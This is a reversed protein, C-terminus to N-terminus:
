KEKPDLAEKAKKAADKLGNGFSKIGAKAKSAAYITQYKAIQLKEENSLEEAYKEYSSGTYKSFQDDAKKWDNESFSDSKEQVKEIFSGFDSMYSDKNECATLFFLSLAVVLFKKM